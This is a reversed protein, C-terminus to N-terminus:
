AAAHCQQAVHASRFRRGARPQGPVVVKLKRVEHAVALRGPRMAVHRVEVHVPPRECGAFHVDGIVLLAVEPNPPLAARHSRPQSRDHVASRADDDARVQTGRRVGFRDQARKVRREAVV